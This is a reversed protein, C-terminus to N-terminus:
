ECSLTDDQIPDLHWANCPEIDDSLTEKFMVHDRKSSHYLDNEIFAVVDNM